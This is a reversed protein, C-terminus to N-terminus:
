QGFNKQQHTAARNELRSTGWSTERGVPALSSFALFCNLHEFNKMGSSDRLIIEMPSLGPMAM